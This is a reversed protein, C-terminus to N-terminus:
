DQGNQDGAKVIAMRVAKALTRIRGKPQMLVSISLRSLRDIRQRDEKTLLKDEIDDWTIM